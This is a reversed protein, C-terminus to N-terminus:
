YTLRWGRCEVADLICLQPVESAQHFEKESKHPKWLHVIKQLLKANIQGGHLWSGHSNSKMALLCGIWPFLSLPRIRLLMRVGRAKPPSRFLEM